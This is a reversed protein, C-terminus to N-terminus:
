KNREIVRAIMKVIVKNNKQNTLQQISIIEIYKCFIHFWNEMMYFGNEGPHHFPCM